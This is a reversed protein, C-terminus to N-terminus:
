FPLSCPSLGDCPNSGDQIHPGSPNKRCSFAAQVCASILAMCVNWCRHATFEFRRCLREQRTGPHVLPPHASDNQATTGDTESHRRVSAGSDSLDYARGEAGTLPLLPVERSTRPAILFLIPGIPGRTRSSSPWSPPARAQQLQRRGPTTCRPGPWTQCRDTRFNRAGCYEQLPKNDIDVYIYPM